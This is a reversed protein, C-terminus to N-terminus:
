PNQVPQHSFVYGEFYRDFEVNWEYGMSKVFDNMWQQEKPSLAHEGRKYEYYIRAGHLHQTIYKRMPTYDKKMVRDFLHSFGAAFVCTRIKDFWRCEGNKLTKPMVCNATEMTEPAYTAALHRMCNDKLPCDNNTCLVYWSPVKSFDFEQNIPTITKNIDM